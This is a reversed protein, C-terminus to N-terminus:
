RWRGKGNRLRLKLRASLQPLSPPFFAFEFSPFHLHCFSGTQLQKVGDERDLALMEVSYIPVAAVRVEIAVDKPQFLEEGKKLAARIANV